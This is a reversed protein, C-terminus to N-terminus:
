RVNRVRVYGYGAGPAMHGQDHFVRRPIVDLAIPSVPPFVMFAEMARERRTRPAAITPMEIPVAAAASIVMKLCGFKLPSPSVNRSSVAFRAFRPNRSWTELM